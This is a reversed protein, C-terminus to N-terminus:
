PVWEMHRKEKAATMGGTTRVGDGLTAAAPRILRCSARAAFGFLWAAALLCSAVVPITPLPFQARMGSPMMPWFQSQQPALPGEQSRPADAM